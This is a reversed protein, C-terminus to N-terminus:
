WQAASAARSASAVASSTTPTDQDRHRRDAPEGAHDGGSRLDGERDAVVDVLPKLCKVPALVPSEPRGADCAAAHRQRGDAARAFRIISALDNTFQGGPHVSQGISRRPPAMRYWGAHCDPCAQIAAAPPASRLSALLRPRASTDIARRAGGPAAAGSGRPPM